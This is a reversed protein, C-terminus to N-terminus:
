RTIVSIGVQCWPSNAESFWTVGEKVFDIALVYDGPDPLAEVRLSLRQRAGPGIPTALITRLGDLRVMKGDPTLWHYSLHVPHSGESSWEDWGSNVVDVSVDFLASRQVSGPAEPREYQVDFRSSVSPGSAEPVQTISTNPLRSELLNPESTAAIVWHKAAGDRDRRQLLDEVACVLTYVIEGALPRLASRAHPRPPYRDFGAITGTVRLSWSAFFEQFDELAYRREVAGEGQAVAVANGTRDQSSEEEDVAAEGCAAELRDRINALDLLLWDFDLARSWRGTWTGAPEILLCRTTRSRLWQLFDQPRELHHFADFMTVLEYRDAAPLTEADGASFRANTLALRSANTRAREIARESHDVGVFSLHPYRRALECTIEGPGCGVDLVTGSAPILAAAHDAFRRITVYGPYDPAFADHDQADYLRDHYQRDSDKSWAGHKWRLQRVALSPLRALRRLSV